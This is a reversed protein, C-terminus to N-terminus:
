NIHEADPKAQVAQPQTEPKVAEAPKGGAESKKKGYGTVSTVVLILSLAAVLAKSRHM